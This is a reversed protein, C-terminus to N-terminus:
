DRLISRHSGRLLYNGQRRAQYGRDGHRMSISRQSESIFKDGQCCNHSKENPKAKFDLCFRIVATTSNLIFLALKRM